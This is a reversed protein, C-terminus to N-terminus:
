SRDYENNVWMIPFLIEPVNELITVKPHKVIPMNIQLKNETRYVDGTLSDVEVRSEDSDKDPPSM